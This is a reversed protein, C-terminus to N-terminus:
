IYADTLKEKIKRQRVFRHVTELSLKNTLNNVIQNQKRFNKKKEIILFIMKINASNYLNPILFTLKILQMYANMHIKVHKKREQM